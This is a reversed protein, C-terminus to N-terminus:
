QFYVDKNSLGYTLILPTKTWKEAGFSSVRGRTVGDPEALLGGVWEVPSEALATRQQEAINDSAWVWVKNSDPAVVEQWAPHQAQDISNQVTSYQLFHNTVFPNLSKYLTPHWMGEVGFEIGNNTCEKAAYLLVAEYKLVSEIAAADIFIGKVKNEKAFNLSWQLGHIAQGEDPCDQLSGLYLYVEVGNTTLINIYWILSQVYMYPVYNFADIRSWGINKDDRPCGFPMHLIVKTGTGVFDKTPIRGGISESFYNVAGMKSHLIKTSIGQFHNTGDSAMQNMHIVTM